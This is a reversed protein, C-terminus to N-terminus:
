RGCATPLGVPKWMARCRQTIFSPRVNIGLCKGMLTLKWPNRLRQLVEKSFCVSNPIDINEEMTDNWETSQVMIKRAESFWQSSSAVADKFSVSKVVPGTTMDKGKDGKQQQNLVDTTTPTDHTATHHDFDDEMTIDNTSILVPPAEERFGEM